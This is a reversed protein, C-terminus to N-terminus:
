MVWETLINVFSSIVHLLFASAYQPEDGLSLHFLEDDDDNTVADPDWNLFLGTDTMQLCTVKELSSRNAFSPIRVIEVNHPIVENDDHGTRSSTSDSFEPRVIFVGTRQM